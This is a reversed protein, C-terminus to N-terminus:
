CSLLFSIPEILRRQVCTGSEYSLFLERNRWLM